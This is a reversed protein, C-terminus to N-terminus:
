KVLKYSFSRDKTDTVRILFIGEGLLGFPVDQLTRGALHFTNLHKGDLSFIECRDLPTADTPFFTQTVSVEDTVGINLRRTLSCGEADTVMLEISYLAPVPKSIQVRLTSNDEIVPQLGEGEFSFSYAPQKTFGAFLEPLSVRLTSDPAVIRHEEALWNLYNELLTYGDRDADDNNSPAHPDSQVIREFWDPIGDQDSDFGDPRQEEPYLEFGGCDDEHDIQGALHSRSGRFTWTGNLTERVMRRDNEDMAPQNAGVDSLVKKYADQPADVTAHSPFFPENVFPKWDYAQSSQLSQMDAKDKDIRGTGYSERINDKVFASQSGKGTGELQLIFITHQTTAPGEKYYNGVFNVEHAGGDTARGGWNYVVNNFIDLRGAYYGNGDLGGGLSWNRGQCDALLNHHFSGVDGGITAAYGHNTGSPYNKHDAVGLAEAILSHQFSINQAGRSSFTEDTGWSATVHDLITNDAGAVGLANGTPGYGRRARLFRCINDSGININSSKLCIGKGPATQGAITIDSKGFVAEFDMVILGSVDFVITHPGEVDTLGYLLSGPQHDNRLNTVHYVTGGRGGKAHRGYGEAGPFALHRPQFQWTEGQLITGDAKEEDVRWYYTNRSYINRLTFTTDSIIALKQLNKEDTGMWLHHRKAVPAPSWSLTVSDGDCDAHFDYNAPMPDFAMTAPNPKDIVLANIFVSSNKYGTTYTEDPDPLARYHITVPQGETANFRIYSYGSESAKEKNTTQVVSDQILVNDVYIALLPSQYGTANNHYALLTHSGTSLGKINIEIEGAPGQLQPTNGDSDLHFVSVGDGVLKDLSQTINKSWQSRLVDGGSHPGNSITVTIDGFTKTESKATGVAWASFGDATVQTEQRGPLNFDINQARLHMALLMTPLILWTKKM